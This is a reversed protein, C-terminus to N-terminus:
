DIIHRQLPCTYWKLLARKTTWVAIMVGSAACHMKKDQQQKSIGGVLLVSNFGTAVLETIDNNYKKSPSSSSIMM